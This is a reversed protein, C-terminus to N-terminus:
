VLGGRVVAVLGPMRVANWKRPIKGRANRGRLAEGLRNFCSVCVVGFVLRPSPAGCATCHHEVPKAVVSEGAHRAGIACGQCRHTTEWPEARKGARYNAACSVPMLRLGGPMRPCTFLGLDEDM